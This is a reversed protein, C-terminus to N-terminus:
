KEDSDPSLDVDDDLYHELAEELVEELISDDDLVGSTNLYVVVGSVVFILSFILTNM